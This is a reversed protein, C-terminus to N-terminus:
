NIDWNEIRFEVERASNNMQIYIKPIYRSFPLPSANAHVHLREIHTLQLPFLFKGVTKFFLDQM